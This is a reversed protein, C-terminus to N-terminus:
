RGLSILDSIKFPSFLPPYSREDLLSFEGSALRAVKGGDVGKAALIEAAVRFVNTDNRCGAVALKEVIHLVDVV